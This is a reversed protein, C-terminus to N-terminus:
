NIGLMVIVFKIVVLTESVFILKDLWIIKNIFDLVKIKNDRNIDSISKLNDVLWNYVQTKIDILKFSIFSFLIVVILGIQADSVSYFISNMVLAILPFIYLIKLNSVFKRLLDIFKNKNDDMISIGAEILSLSVSVLDKGYYCKSSLKIVKSKINYFTFYGTSEIINISNYKSIIDKSIDFGNSESVTNKRNIIILFIYGIFSFIILLSSLIMLIDIM